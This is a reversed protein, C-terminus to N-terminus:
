CWKLIFALLEKENRFRWMDFSMRVGCRNQMTWEMIADAEKETLHGHDPYSPYTPEAGYLRIWVGPRDYEIREWRQPTMKDM